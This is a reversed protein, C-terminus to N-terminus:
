TVFLNSAVLMPMGEFRAILVKAGAGSGDADYYLLYDNTDYLLYDNSDSATATTNARFFSASLVGTTTLKAFVSNELEIRDTGPLFDKLTDVNSSSNLASSFRFTDAGAGGTLTDNGAGGNIRNIGANGVLTNALTNGTANITGSGLLTLRELGAGLTWSVSSSVSDIEGALTSTEVVIDGASDVTYRDNGSGGVLSDNGTGGDLSDNGTGGNLTDNGGGGVLTDNGAEGRLTNAVNNGTITNALANGTGQTASGTLTLRELNAGLTWTVASQVADIETSGTSADVIVDTISDVIYTDNGTGGELRDSGTGGDLTDRGAEGWLSDNGGGGRITDAFATGVAQEGFSTGTWDIPATRPDFYQLAIDSNGGSFVLTSWTVAFRGDLLSVVDPNFQQGASAATDTVVFDSSGLPRGDDGYLRGRIDANANGQSYDEWVVVFGGERLSAVAPNIQQGSGTTNVKVVAGTGVRMLIESQLPDSQGRDEWVTVQTGTNLLATDPDTMFATLVGADVQRPTPNGSLTPTTYTRANIADIAGNPPQADQWAFAITSGRVAISAGTDGGLGGAVDSIRVPALTLPAATLSFGQGMLATSSSLGSVSLNAEEWGVVFGGDATGAIAPGRQNGSSTAIGVEGTTATGGANFVRAAINLDSSPGTGWAIAFGGGQLATVQAAEQLGSTTVNATREGTTTPAFRADVIRYSVDGSNTAYDNWTVVVNGSRLVAISPQDQIGSVQNNLKISSGIRIPVSM